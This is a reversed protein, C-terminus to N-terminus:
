DTVSALYVRRMFAGREHEKQARFREVEDWSSGNLSALARLIEAIDALEEVSPSELYEKVEEQLKTRLANRYESEDLTRTVPEGGNERIIEPIRDRVLKNYVTM